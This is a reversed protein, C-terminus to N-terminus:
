GALVRELELKLEAMQYPKIVRGKFGYDQYQAIVLDNAYGSSVVIRAAPDLQMIKDATEQGGMGGPITLDVIVLDYPEGKAFAQQYESLALSGDDVSVTFAGFRELIQELLQCIHPEDDMILIKAEAFTHAYKVKEFSPESKKSNAGQVVAPLYITFVSGQDIESTFNMLGDHRSVISHCTALGLGSGIEKTTFYPDLIKDFLDPLIGCGEDEVSIKVLQEAALSVERGGPNYINEARLDIKGGKELMAQQANIVLNSIVQSLQGKDVEASWLGQEIDLHLKINSGRLSFEATDKIIEDIAQVKAVPAGGKAFTLLQATLDTARSIAKESADLFEFARNDSEITSKALSINGFVATLLNNFDHAIGGALTGISELQRSCRIEHESKLKATVDRFVLVVGIIENRGDWIPAASDEVDYECGDRSLLLTRNGLAVIEKKEFVESVPCTRPDRTTKNIIKFIESVPQSLASDQQWGTLKEAVPNLMLVRGEIDTSIVADGISHLTVELREHEDALKRQSEIKERLMRNAYGSLEDFEKFKLEDQKIEEDSDVVRSLFRVFVEYDRRLYRSIITLLFLFLLIVVLTVVVFGLVVQKLERRLDDHLLLIERECDDLYVGAGIMWQWDDVGKMFSTKPSPKKTSPKNWSYYIFDGDPNSVARREEQIVKVGNPDTLNWINKGILDRMTDNMLTIGTYSVVFIYGNKHEGFRIKGVEELLEQQLDEETKTCSTGSRVIQSKTRDGAVMRVYTIHDFVREVERKIMEKQRGIFEARIKKSQRGFQRYSESIHFFSLVVTLLVLAAVFLWRLLNLLGIKKRM